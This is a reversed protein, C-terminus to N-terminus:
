RAAARVEKLLELGLPHSPNRQLLQELVQAGQTLSGEKLHIRALTVYAPEFDPRERLLQQLVLVARVSEGRAALVLALNTAAEGYTGRREVAQQFFALASDLDGQRGLLIGMNNLAEPFDPQLALAKEFLERARVAEGRQLWVYGLNNLADAFDPRVELAANFREIAADIEGSQAILVGLSNNADPYGPQLQLSRDFAARADAARGGRMYLTGLNYFTIASPELKAAREFAALSADDYGQESLELAYQFYSREGPRAYFAGAFPLARVLREREMADAEKADRALTVGGTLQRYVRAVEGRANLLFVTPLRLDERRDFAYRHLLNYRGAVEDGAVAIPVGVSGAAAVVAREDERSDVALALVAIGAERLEPQQRSLEELSRL